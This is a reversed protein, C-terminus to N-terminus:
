ARARVTCSCTNHRQQRCGHVRVCADGAGHAFRAVLAGARGQARGALLEAIAAAGQQTRALRTAGELTLTQPRRTRRPRPQRRTAAANHPCSCHPSAAATQAPARGEWAAGASLACAAWWWCTRVCLRGAWGTPRRWCRLTRSRCTRRRCTSSTTASPWPRPRSGCRSSSSWSTCLLSTHRLPQQTLLTQRRRARQESRTHARHQRTSSM